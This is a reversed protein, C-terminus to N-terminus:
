DDINLDKIYKKIKEELEELSGNNEILSSAYLREEEHSMQNKIRLRAKEESINDRQMIREIRKKTDAYILCVTDAAKDLGSEVLLPADVVIFKYKDKNKLIDNKIEERIHKHTIENLRKLKEKDSFVIPGLIARNIEGDESLIETGFFDVIEAYCKNGRKMLLHATKDADICYGGLTTFIKCAAGKGSGSGGMLGIIM